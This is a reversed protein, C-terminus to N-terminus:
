WQDLLSWKYVTQLCYKRRHEVAHVLEPAGHDLVARASRVSRESVNLIEAAKAQTVGAFKGSQDARVGHPLNALKGSVMARQSEDLHRRRLNLSVVFAAPDDGQYEM